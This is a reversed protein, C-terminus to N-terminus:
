GPTLTSIAVAVAAEDAEDAAVPVASRAMSSSWCTTIRGCTGRTWNRSSYSSTRSSLQELIWRTWGSPMSGGYRDWLGIRVPNIKKSEAAAPPGSGVFGTGLEKAAKQVIALTSPKKTVWFTGPSYTQRRIARTKEFRKVEEGAALLRNM